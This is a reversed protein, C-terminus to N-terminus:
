RAGEELWEHTEILRVGVAAPHKWEEPIESSAGSLIDAALRVAVRRSMKAPQMLTIRLVLQAKM